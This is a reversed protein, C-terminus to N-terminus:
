ATVRRDDVIQDIIKSPADLGTIYFIRIMRVSDMHCGLHTQHTSSNETSMVTFVAFYYPRVFQPFFHDFVQFCSQRKIFLLQYEGM